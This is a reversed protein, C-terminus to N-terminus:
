IGLVMFNTSANQLVAAPRTAHVVDPCLRTGLGAAGMSSPMCSLVVETLRALCGCCHPQCGCM